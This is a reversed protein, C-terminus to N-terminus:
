RCFVVGVYASGNCVSNFVAIIINMPEPLPLIRLALVVRVGLVPVALYASNLRVCHSLKM